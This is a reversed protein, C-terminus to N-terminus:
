GRSLSLLGKAAGGRIASSTLREDDDCRTRTPTNLAAPPLRPLLAKEPSPHAQPMPLAQQHGDNEDTLIVPPDARRESTGDGDPSRRPVRLAGGDPVRRVQLRELPVNEQGTRLKYGALGLRLRLIEAKQRAEERTLTPRRLRPPSSPLAAESDPETTCTATTVDVASNDFVSSAEPSASGDKTDDKPSADEAALSHQPRVPTCVRKSPTAETGELPRKNGSDHSLPTIKLQGQNKNAAPSQVNADLTGLVRRKSPSTEM